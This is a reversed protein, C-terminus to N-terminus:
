GHTCHDVQRHAGRRGARRHTSRHQRLHREGAAKLDKKLKDRQDILARASLMVAEVSGEPWTQGKPLKPLEKIAKKLAATAFADQKENLVEALDTKDDESLAEILQTLESVVTEADRSLQTVQNKLQPLYLAQVLENPAIRGEWGVQVEEKKGKRTKMEMVHDKVRM